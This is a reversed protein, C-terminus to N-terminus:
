AKIAIFAQPLYATIDSAILAPQTKESAAIDGALGHLFVGAILAQYAELGQGLM